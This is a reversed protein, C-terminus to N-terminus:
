GRASCERLESGAFEQAIAGLRARVAADVERLQLWNRAAQLERPGIVASRVGKERLSALRAQAADESAYLGLSISWRHRADDQVIYYDDVGLASLEAAKRQAGQRNGQPPMHVWWSAAQDVRRESLRAGLALPGLAAQARAAESGSFAGWEICAIPATGAQALALFEGANVIRLREPEVQRMFPQPDTAPDGPSFYRTWSFFALNALVLLLFLTRM